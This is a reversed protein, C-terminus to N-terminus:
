QTLWLSKPVSGNQCAVFTRQPHAKILNLTNHFTCQLVTHTYRVTHTITQPRCPAGCIWWNYQVVTCTDSQLIVTHQGCLSSTLSTLEKVVQTVSDNRDERSKRIITDLDIVGRVVERGGSVYREGKVRRWKLGSTWKTGNSLSLEM